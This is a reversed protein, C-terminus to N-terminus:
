KYLRDQVLFNGTSWIICPYKSIKVQPFPVRVAIPMLPRPKGRNKPTSSRLSPFLLGLTKRKNCSSRNIATTFTSLFTTSLNRNHLSPLSIGLQELTNKYEDIKMSKYFLTFNPHDSLVLSLSSISSARLSTYLSLCSPM